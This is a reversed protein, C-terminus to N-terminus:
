LKLPKALLSEPKPQLTEVENTLVAVTISAFTEHPRRPWVLLDCEQELMTADASIQAVLFIQLTLSLLDCQASMAVRQPHNTPMQQMLVSQGFVKLIKFVLFLM